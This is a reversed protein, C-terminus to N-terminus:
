ADAFDLSPAGQTVIGVEDRLSVLLKSGCWAFFDLKIFCDGSDLNM